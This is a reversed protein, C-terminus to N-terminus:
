KPPALRTQNIVRVHSKTWSELLTTIEFQKKRDTLKNTIILKSKFPNFELYNPSINHVFCLDGQALGGNPQLELPGRLYNFAPSPTKFFKDWTGIEPIAYSTEDFLVGDLEFILL